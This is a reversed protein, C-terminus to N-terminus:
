LQIIYNLKKSLKSHFSIFISGAYVNNLAPNYILKKTTIYQERLIGTVNNLILSGNEWSAKDFQLVNKKITLKGNLFYHQSQNLMLSLIIFKKNFIINKIQKKASIEYKLEGIDDNSETKYQKVIIDTMYISTSEAPASLVLLLSLVLSKIM